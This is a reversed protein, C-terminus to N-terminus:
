FISDCFSRFPTIVEFKYIISLVILLVIFLAAITNFGVSLKTKPNTDGACWLTMYLVLFSFLSFVPSYESFYLLIALVLIWLMGLVVGFLYQKM